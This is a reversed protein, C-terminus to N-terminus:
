ATKYIKDVLAETILHEKVLLCESDTWVENSRYQQEFDQNGILTDKNYQILKFGNTAPNLLEDIFDYLPTYNINKKITSFTYKIHQSLKDSTKL